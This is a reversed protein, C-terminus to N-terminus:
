VSCVKFACLSVFYKQMTLLVLVELKTASDTVASVPKKTKARHISESMITTDCM